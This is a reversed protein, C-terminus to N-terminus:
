KGSEPKKKFKKNSIKELMSCTQIYNRLVLIVKSEIDDLSWDYALAIKIQVDYQDVFVSDIGEIDFLRTALSLGESGEPDEVLDSRRLYKELNDSLL